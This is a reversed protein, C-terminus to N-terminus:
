LPARPRLKSPTVGPPLLRPGTNPEWTWTSKTPQHRPQWTPTTRSLWSASLHSASLRSGMPASAVSSASIASAREVDPETGGFLAQMNPTSRSGHLNGNGAELSEHWSNLLWLRSHGEARVARLDQLEEEKAAAERALQRKSKELPPLPPNGGEGLDSAPPPVALGVANFTYGLRDYLTHVNSYGPMLDGIRQEMRPPLGRAADIRPRMRQGNARGKKEKTCAERYAALAGSPDFATPSVGPYPPEKGPEPPLGFRCTSVGLEVM